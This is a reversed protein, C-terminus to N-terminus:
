GDAPHQGMLGFNPEIRTAVGDEVAVTLLDPGNVCQCCYGPVKKHLPKSKANMSKMEGADPLQNPSRM